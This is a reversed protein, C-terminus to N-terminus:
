IPEATINKAALEKTIEEFNDAYFLKMKRLNPFHRTDEFSKINFTDDEGDWFRLMSGYVEDGGDQSIETIEAAYKRDIELAEFYATVEPIFAYGEEEVDIERASHDRIFEYLDFVPAIFKKEYMLQQIVALKFNFDTFQIKEGDVKRYSYKDSHVEPAPPMYQSITIAQVNDEEADFYVTMDGVTLSGGDDLRSVKKLRKRTKVFVVRCDEANIDFPAKFLNKPSFDFKNRFMELHIAEVLEGNNSYALIGEEDWTYIHNYQKKVHRANGLLAQLERINAPFSIEKKNIILKDNVIAIQM